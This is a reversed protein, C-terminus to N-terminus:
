RVGASIGTSPSGPCTMALFYAIRTRSTGPSGQSDIAEQLYRLAEEYRGARFLVAGLAETLGTSHKGTRSNVALDFGREACAVASQYNALAGPRLACVRATQLADRPGEAKAFEALMSRCTDRYAAEDGLKLNVLALRFYVDVDDVGRALMEKLLDAAEQWREENILGDFEKSDMPDLIGRWRDRQPFTYGASADWVKIQGDVSVAALKKGDPSWCIQGIGASHRELSLIEHGTASDWLHVRGDNGGSAIRLDDGSWALDAVSSAHIRESALRRESVWDWVECLGEDNAAAIKQGDHSWAVACGMVRETGIQILRRREGSDADIIHVYGYFWDYGDHEPLGGGTVAIWRGDPSWVTGGKPVVIAADQVDHGSRLNRLVIRVVSEKSSEAFFALRNGDPSVAVRDPM